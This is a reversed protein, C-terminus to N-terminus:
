TIRPNCHTKSVETVWPAEGPISTAWAVTRERLNSYDFAAEDEGLDSHDSIGWGGLGGDKLKALYIEPSPSTDQIMAHFRVLTRNRNPM